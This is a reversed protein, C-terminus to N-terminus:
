PITSPVDLSDVADAASNGEANSNNLIAYAIPAALLVILGLVVIWEPVATGKRKAKKLM